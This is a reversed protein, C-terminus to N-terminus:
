KFLRNFLSLRSKQEAYFAGSVAGTIYITGSDKSLNEVRLGKGEIYMKGLHTSLTVCQEDFGDISEVGSIEISKRDKIMVTGFIDKDSM